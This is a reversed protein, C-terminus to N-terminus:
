LLFDKEHKRLILCYYQVERNGHDFIFHAYNRMTGELGYDKFGKLRHLYILEDYNRNYRVLLARISDVAGQLGNPQTIESKELFRISANMKHNLAKFKQEPGSSAGTYFGSDNVDGLFIDEKLNNTELLLMRTNKLQSHYDELKKSTNLSSIFLCIAILCILLLTSFASILWFRFSNVM